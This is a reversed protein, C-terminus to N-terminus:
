DNLQRTTGETVSVPSPSTLDSRQDNIAFPQGAMLADHQRAEVVTEKGTLGLLRFQSKAELVASLGYAVEIGGWVTMWGFFVMWILIWPADFSAPLFLQFPITLLLSVAMLISGRTIGSVGKIRQELWDQATIPEGTNRDLKKKTPKSIALAVAELGAGCSRCFKVDAGNATACQPCFM